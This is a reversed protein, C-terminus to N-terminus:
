IELCGQPVATNCLHPQRTGPPRPYCRSSAFPPSIVPCGTGFQAQALAFAFQKPESYSANCAPMGGGIDEELKISITDPTQVLEECRSSWHSSGPAVVGLIESTAARWVSHWPRCPM